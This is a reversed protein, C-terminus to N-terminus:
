MRGLYQELYKEEGWHSVSHGLLQVAEALHALRVAMM